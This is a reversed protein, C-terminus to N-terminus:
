SLEKVMLSVYKKGNGSYQRSVEYFGNNHHFRLSNPNPPKLNVECTVIEAESARFLYEYLASGYGKGRFQEGIVIRDVYDFQDYNESFYMYNESDYDQGPGLVILFGAISGQEEIVKFLSSMRMFKGFDPISISNVHPIAAENLQKLRPLDSRQVTRLKMDSYLMSSINM